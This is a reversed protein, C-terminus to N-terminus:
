VADGNSVVMREWVSEVENDSLLAVLDSLSLQRADLLLHPLRSTMSKVTVFPGFTAVLRHHRHRRCADFRQEPGSREVTRLLRGQDATQFRCGGGTSPRPNGTTRKLRDPDTRVRPADRGDNVSFRSPSHRGIATAPRINLARACGEALWAERLVRRVSQGPAVTM